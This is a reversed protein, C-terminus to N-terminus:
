ARDVGGWAKRNTGSEEPMQRLAKSVAERLRTTSKTARMAQIAERCDDSVFNENQTLMINERPRLNDHVDM